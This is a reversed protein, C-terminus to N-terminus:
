VALQDQRSDKRKACLRDSRDGRRLTLGNISFSAQSSPVCPTEIQALCPISPGPGGPRFRAAGRFTPPVGVSGVARPLASFTFPLFCAAAAASPSQRRRALGALLGQPM